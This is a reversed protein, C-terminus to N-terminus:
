TADTLFLNCGAKSLVCTIDFLGTCTVMNLVVWDWTRVYLARGTVTILLFCAVVNFSYDWMSHLLLLGTAWYLLFGRNLYSQLNNTLFAM